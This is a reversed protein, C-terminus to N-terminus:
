RRERVARRARAARSSSTAARESPTWGAGCWIIARSSETATTATPEDSRTQSVPVIEGSRNKM